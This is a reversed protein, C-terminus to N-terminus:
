YARRDHRVCEHTDRECQSRWLGHAQGALSARARWGLRGVADPGGAVDDGHVRLAAQDFVAGHGNAAIADHADALAGIDLFPKLGPLLMSRGSAMRVGPRILVWVWAAMDSNRPMASSMFSCSQSFLNMKGASALFTVGIEHEPARAQRAQFHQEGAGGREDVHVVELVHHGFGGFFGAHAAHQAFGDDAEFRGVAAVGLSM